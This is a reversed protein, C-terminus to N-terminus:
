RASGAMKQEVLVIAICVFARTVITSFRALVGSGVIFSTMMVAVSDRLTEIRRSEGECVCRDSYSLLEGDCSYSLPTSRVFISLGLPFVIYVVAVVKLVELQDRIIFLSGIYWVM